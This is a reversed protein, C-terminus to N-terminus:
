HLLGLLSQRTDPESLLVVILIVAITIWFKLGRQHTKDLRPDKMERVQAFKAKVATVGGQMCIKIYFALVYVAGLCFFLFLCQDQTWAWPVSFADYTIRAFALAAAFFIPWGWWKWEM